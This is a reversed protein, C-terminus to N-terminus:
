KRTCKRMCKHVQIKRTAM